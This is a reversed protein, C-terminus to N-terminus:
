IYTDQTIPNVFMACLLQGYKYKIKTMPRKILNNIPNYVLFSIYDYSEHFIQKKKPKLDKIKLKIKLNDKSEKIIYLM